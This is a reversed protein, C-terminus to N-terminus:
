HLTFSFMTKAHYTEGPQLICNPFEAHHVADPFRQTEFCVGDYKQHIMGGKGQIGSLYNGTYVQLGRQNTSIEMCIGTQDSRVKGARVMETENAHTVFCHDYGGGIRADMQIIDRGILKETRFDFATGVVPLISGTPILNDDIELVEDCDLQLHHGLVNGAGNLNFYAHNTLNIPTPADTTATYELLLKNQATLRYTITIQVNGPFGQEEAASTRIFRVGEGEASSIPEGQWLMKEFRNFGGHLCNEGDNKNLAYTKGDLVFQAGGIRNAVRGVIANHAETGARWEALTDYGLLIDTLGGNKNPVLLNTLTCGLNMASFSMHGNTVTYLFIDKALETKKVM